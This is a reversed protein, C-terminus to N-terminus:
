LHKTSIAERPLVARDLILVMLGGRANGLPRRPLEIHRSVQPRAMDEQSHVLDEQSPVSVQRRVM